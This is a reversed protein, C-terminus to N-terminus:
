KIKSAIASWLKTVSIGLGVGGIVPLGKAFVVVAIVAAYCAVAIDSMLLDLIKSLKSM